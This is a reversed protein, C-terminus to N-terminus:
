RRATFPETGIQWAHGDLSSDVPAFGWEHIGDVAVRRHPEDLPTAADVPREDVRSAQHHVRLPAGPSDGLEEAVGMRVVRTGDSARQLVDALSEAVRDREVMERLVGVEVLEVQAAGKARLDSHGRM